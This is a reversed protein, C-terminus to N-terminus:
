EIKFSKKCTVKVNNDFRDLRLTFESYYDGKPLPRLKDIQYNLFGPNWALESDSNNVWPCLYERYNNAGVITINVGEVLLRDFPKGFDDGKSSYVHFIDNGLLTGPDPLYADKYEDVEVLALSLAAM